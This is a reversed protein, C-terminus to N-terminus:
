MELSSYFLPQVANQFLNGLKPFLPRKLIPLFLYQLMIPDNSQFAHTFGKFTLTLFNLPDPEFLNSFSSLLDNGLKFIQIPPTEIQKLDPFFEYGNILYLKQLFPPIDSSPYPFFQNPINKSVKV